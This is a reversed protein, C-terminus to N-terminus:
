LNEKIENIEEDTLEGLYEINSDEHIYELVQVADDCAITFGEINKIIAKDSELESTFEVANYVREINVTFSLDEDDLVRILLWKDYYEEHRSYSFSQFNCISLENFYSYNKFNTYDTTSVGLDSLDGEVEEITGENSDSDFVSLFSLISSEESLKIFSNVYVIEDILITGFKDSGAAFASAALMMLDGEEITTPETLLFKLNNTFGYQMLEQYIALNERPSDITKDDDEDIDDDWDVGEGRVVVLRGSADTTILQHSADTTVTESSEKRGKSGNSSTSIDSETDILTLSSIAEALANDLVRQPSRVINIRGLEVEGAQYVTQDLEGEGDVELVVDDGVLVDDAFALVEPYWIGGDYAGDEEVIVYGMKPVGNEDRNLIYLDGYDEGKGKSSDTKGSKLEADISDNKECAITLLLLLLVGLFKRYTKM